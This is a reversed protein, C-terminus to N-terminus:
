EGVPVICSGVPDVVPYEMTSDEEVIVMVPDDPALMMEREALLLGTGSTDFMALRRVILMLAPDSAVNLQVEMVPSVDIPTEDTLAEIRGLQVLVLKGDSWDMTNYETVAAVVKGVVHLVRVVRVAMLMEYQVLRVADSGVM